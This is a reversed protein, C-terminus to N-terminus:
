HRISFHSMLLPINKLSIVRYMLAPDCISADSLSASLVKLMSLSKWWSKEIPNSLDKSM